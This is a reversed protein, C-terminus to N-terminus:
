SDNHKQRMFNLKFPLLFHKYLHVKNERVHTKYQSNFSLIVTLTLCETSIALKCWCDPMFTLLKTFRNLCNLCKLNLVTWCSYISMAFFRKFLAWCYLFALEISSSWGFQCWFVSIYYLMSRFYLIRFLSFDYLSFCFSDVKRLVMFWISSCFQQTCIYVGM